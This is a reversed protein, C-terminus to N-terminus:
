PASWTINGNADSPGDPQIHAPNQCPANIELRIDNAPWNPIPEGEEDQLVGSYTYQFTPNAVEVNKPSRGLRNAGFFFIVTGRGSQTRDPVNALAAGTFTIGALTLTSIRSLRM